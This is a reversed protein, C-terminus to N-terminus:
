VTLLQLIMPDIGSGHQQDSRPYVYTHKHSWTLRKGDSSAFKNSKIGCSHSLKDVSTVMLQVYNFNLFM